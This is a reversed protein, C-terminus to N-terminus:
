LRANGRVRLSLTSDAGSGPSPVAFFNGQVAAAEGGRTLIWLKRLGMMFDRRRDILTITHSSDLARRLANAATLGGFGGGLILIRKGGM